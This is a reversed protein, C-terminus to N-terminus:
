FILGVFLSSSQVKRFLALFLRLSEFYGEFITKYLLSDWFASSVVVAMFRRLIEPEEHLKQSTM